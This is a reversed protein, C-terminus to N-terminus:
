SPPAQVTEVFKQDASAPAEASPSESAPEASSPPAAAAELAPQPPAPEVPIYVDDMEKDDVDQRMLLYLAGAVCWFFSMVFGLTVFRVLGTVLYILLAGFKLLGGGAPSPDLTYMEFGQNALGVIQAAREAGAGWSLAWFGFELVMDTGYRVVALCLAGFLAAVVAYFLYHLPKGYVYSFSRSFAEFADGEKEASITGWM